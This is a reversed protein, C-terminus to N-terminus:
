HESMASVSHSAYETDLLASSASLSMILDDTVAFEPDSKRCGEERLNMKAWVRGGCSPSTVDIKSVSTHCLHSFDNLSKSKLIWHFM